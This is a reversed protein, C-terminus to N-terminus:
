LVVGNIIMKEIPNNGYDYPIYALSPMPKSIILNAKKGAAISGVENQLEM